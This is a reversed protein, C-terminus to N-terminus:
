MHGLMVNLDHSVAMERNIRQPGFLGGKEISLSQAMAHLCDVYSFIAKRSNRVHALIHCHRMDLVEPLSVCSAVHLSVMRVFM